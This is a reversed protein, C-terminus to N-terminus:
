ASSPMRSIYRHSSNLRTSKRDAVLLSVQAMLAVGSLSRGLSGSASMRWAAFGGAAALLSAIALGTVPEGVFLRAGLVIPIMLATLLMIMKGGVQRQADLNTFALKM